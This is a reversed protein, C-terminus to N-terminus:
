ESVDQQIENDFIKKITSCYRAYAEQYRACDEYSIRTGDESESGQLVQGIANEIEAKDQMLQSYRSSYEEEEVVYTYIEKVYSMEVFINCDIQVSELSDFNKLEYIPNTELSIEKGNIYIKDLSPNTGLDAGSWGDQYRKSDSIYYLFAPNLSNRIKNYESQTISIIDRRTFRIYPINKVSDKITTLRNLINENSKTSDYALLEVPVNKTQVRSIDSLKTTETTYYAYTIKGQHMILPTDKDGFFQASAELIDQQSALKVSTIEIGADLDVKYSGTAGIIISQEERGAQTIKLIDGPTMDEIQLSLAPKHALLELGEEGPDAPPIVEITEWRMQRKTPDSTIIMGAGLLNEYTNEAVEYATASFSHLMRGLSDTPSLSVNLLRVLYNGEAPSRFLKPEGNNLWALVDLKFQRESFINEGNFDTAPRNASARQERRVGFEEKLEIKDEDTFLFEEDSQYSILGSLQFEKYYINGNRFIFPYKGGITDLKSELLDNKFSAVKPNYKIKLQRQGDYLFAHEFDARIENSYLRDSSLGYENYKQIAYKYSVGQEVTFDKWTWTSPKQGYLSFRLIEDWTTFNDKSSARVIKFLGTIAAEAEKDTSGLAIRIYGNEFNLSTSISLNEEQLMTNNQIIKYLPSSVEMKNITTVIYQLHYIKGAELDQSVRFADYSIGRQADESSNHLTEGSSYIVSGTSADYLNFRYSYPKEAIDKSYDYEGIYDYLHTNIIASSANLGSIGISPESTYKVTAISSYIGINKNSDLYALQVKYYQGKNLKKLEAEPIVFTVKTGDASYFHQSGEDDTRLTIVLRNNQVTKIKLAFGTIDLISVARNVACPIELRNGYFAPIRGSLIPPYLKAM